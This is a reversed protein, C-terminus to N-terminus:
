GCWSRKYGEWRHALGEAVLIEGISHGGRTILRLARGYRDQSRDGYPEIAFPGQNLLILLRKTAKAGLAAEYDCSARYTEPTNIDAIRISQGQYLFTDGDIVCNYGSGRFCKGFSTNVQRSENDSRHQRMPSPPVALARDDTANPMIGPLYFFLIALGVTYFTFWAATSKWSRARQRRFYIIKSM